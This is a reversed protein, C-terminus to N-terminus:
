KTGEAAPKSDTGVKPVSTKKDVDADLTFTKGDASAILRKQNELSLVRRKSTPHKSGDAKIIRFLGQEKAIRGGARLAGL